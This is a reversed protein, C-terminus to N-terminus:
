AEPAVVLLQEGNASATGFYEAMKRPDRFQGTMSVKGQEDAKVFVYLAAPKRAGQPARRKKTETTATTADSMTNNRKTQKAM